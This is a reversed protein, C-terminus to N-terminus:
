QEAHLLSFGLKILEEAVGRDKTKVINKNIELKVESDGVHCAFGGSIPEDVSSDPHQFVYEDLHALGSNQSHNVIDKAHVPISEEYCDFGNDVFQKKLRFYEEDGVKSADFSGDVM